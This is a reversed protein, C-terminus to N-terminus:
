TSFIMDVSWRFPCKKFTTFFMQMGCYNQDLIFLSFLFIWENLDKNTIVNTFHIWKLLLYIHSISHECLPLSLSANSFSSDELPKCDLLLSSAHVCNSICFILHAIDYSACISCPLFQPSPINLIPTKWTAGTTFFGGLCHLLCLLRPNSRQTPFIGQFLVHCGLGTNKGLSSWQCLPRAVTWLTAFLWVCSFCSLVCM